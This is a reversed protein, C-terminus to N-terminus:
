LLSKPCKTEGITSRPSYNLKGAGTFASALTALVKSM